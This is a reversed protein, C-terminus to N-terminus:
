FLWGVSATVQLKDLSLDFSIPKGVQYLMYNAGAEILFSKGIKIGLTGGFGLEPVRNSFGLVTNLKIYAKTKAEGELQSIRVAQKSNAEVLVDLSNKIDNYNADLVQNTASLTEIRSQAETLSQAIRKQSNELETAGKDLSLLKEETNKSLKSMEASNEVLKEYDKQSITLPQTEVTEPLKTPAKALSEEKVEVEQSVKEQTIPKAERQFLADWSALAFCPSALLLLLSLLVSIRKLGRNSKKM